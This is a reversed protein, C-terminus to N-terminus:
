GGYCVENGPLTGRSPRSRHEIVWKTGPPDPNIFGTFQDKGPYRLSSLEIKSKDARPVDGVGKVGYWDSLSYPRPSVIYYLDPFTERIWMTADDQDSIAYVRIKLVFTPVDEESRTRKVTRLAQALCNARGLLRVWVARADDRDVATIVINSGDVDCADSMGAMKLGSPGVSVVSLLADADPYGDHHTQLNPLIERYAEL